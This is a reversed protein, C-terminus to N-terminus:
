FPYQPPTDKITVWQWQTFEDWNAPGGVRTGNGSAGRGGFPIHPEDHVTQDNIHLLGTNLRNGVAMARGVSRSLVAASLGYETQNALAVAEDDSAFTTISAVPGFIEEDFARMGPKVGTLVTPKYFLKDYSGGARLTAGAAVSDQVIAHMHEIQRSNIVPGFAVQGSMPDGVPLHSAKDALRDALAGAIKEHVLIRGTAMCIQGQHLWAGFAANSAALDLDADDLIVMSNKGGLELSVRKLHRGCLEGVRRGAATSGTFAVMAINPDSCIAEGVDVGGPLLQLLGSPLGAEELVRAILVGGSVATQMDPKLVVANGTALAPSVARISLILPFNFPSIVGVVGHPLRRAFSMRGNNSPLVLGQPETVMAASANLIGIAMKLEVDAKPRIAGTERMIWPAFLEINQEFLQAARRFVAAREEYPTAQWQAQAERARAAARAVDAPGARGLTALTAGSAKDMVDFSGQEGATWGSLFLKGKWLAESLVDNTSGM